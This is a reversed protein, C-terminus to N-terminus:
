PQTHNQFDFSNSNMAPTTLNQCIKCHFTTKISQKIALLINSNKTVKLVEKLQAQLSGLENLVSDVEDTLAVLAKEMCTYIQLCTLRKRGNYSPCAEQVIGEDPVAFISRNPAKWFKLGIFNYNM